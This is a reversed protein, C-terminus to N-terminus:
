FQVIAACLNRKTQALYAQAAARTNFVGYLTINKAPLVKSGQLAPLASRNVVYFVGSQQPAAVAAPKILPAPKRAGVIFSRQM